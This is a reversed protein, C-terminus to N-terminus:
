RCAGSDQAHRRRGATLKGRSITVPLLATVVQQEDLARLLASVLPARLLGLRLNDAARVQDARLRRTDEVAPRIQHSGRALGGGFREYFDEPDGQRRYGLLAVM